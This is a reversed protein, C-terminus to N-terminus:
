FPKGGKPKAGRRPKAAPEKSAAALDKMTPASDSYVLTLGAQTAHHDLVPRLGAPVTASMWPGNECWEMPPAKSHPDPKELRETVKEDLDDWATALCWAREPSAESEPAKGGDALPLDGQREESSLDRQDLVAGDPAKLYSKGAKLDKVWTGCDAVELPTAPEESLVCPLYKKTRRVGVEGAPKPPAAPAAEESGVARPTALGDGRPAEGGASERLAEGIEELKRGDLKVVVGGDNAM